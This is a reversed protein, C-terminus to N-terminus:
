ADVRPGLGLLLHTARMCMDMIVTLGLDHGIAAAEESVIGPQMWLFEAGIAGADRAIQPVEGPPRFVQVVDVPIDVEALSTYVREGLYRAGEHASRLSGTGWPNCTNLSPTLHSKRTARRESSPSRRLPPMSRGCSTARHTRSDLM